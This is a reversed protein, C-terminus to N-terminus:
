NQVYEVDKKINSNNVKFLDINGPYHLILKMGLKLTVLFLCVGVLKDRFM